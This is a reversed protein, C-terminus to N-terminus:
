SSWANGRFSFGDLARVVLAPPMGFIERIGQVLEKVSDFGHRRVVGNHTEAYDMNHIVWSRDAAFKALLITNMFTAQPRFSDAISQDFEEIRRPMPNV